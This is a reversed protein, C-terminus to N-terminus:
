DDAPRCYSGDSTEMILRKGVGVYGPVKAEFGNALVVTKVKGAGLDPGAETVEVTVQKPLAATLPQGDYNQVKIDIGDQLWASQGEGLCSMPVEVQEGTEMEMLHLLEGDNYLYTLTRPADLELVSVKDGTNFKQTKFNGSQLDKFKMQLFGGGKGAKGKTFEQVVFMRDSTSGVEEGSVIWGYRLDTVPAKYTADRAIVTLAPSWRGRSRLALRSAALM